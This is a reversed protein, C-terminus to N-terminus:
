KKKYLYFIYGLLGSILAFVLWFIVTGRRSEAKTQEPKEPKGTVIPELRKVDPELLKKNQNQEFKERSQRRQQEVEEKVKEFELGEPYFCYAPLNIFAYAGLCLIIILTKLYRM